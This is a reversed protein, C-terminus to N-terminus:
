KLFKEWRFGTSVSILEYSIKLWILICPVAKIVYPKFFDDRIFKPFIDTPALSTFVIALIFLIRNINTREQPLYWFAVGCMAIIFTASEAKHNFILVWIMISALMLLRFFYDGYLRFRFLPACFLVAGTLLVAMKSIKLGFWTKLWGMVSFGDSIYHDHSLMDQWSQYLFVLYNAQVVFLPLVLLITSWLIIYGALRWKQPYFLFLAFAVLGFIKIYISFVLCFAAWFYNRRELLGFAFIILGAMLGNSQENQLSTM